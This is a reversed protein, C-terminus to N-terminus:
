HRKPKSCAFEAAFAKRLARASISAFVQRQEANLNNRAAGLSRLYPHVHRQLETQEAALCCALPSRKHM